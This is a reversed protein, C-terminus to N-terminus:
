SRLLERTDPVKLRGVAGQLGANGFSGGNFHALRAFRQAERTIPERERYLAQERAMQEPSLNNCFSTRPDEQHALEKIENRKVIEAGVLHNIQTKIAFLEQEELSPKETSTSMYNARHAQRYANLGEQVNDSDPKISWFELTAIVDHDLWSTFNGRDLEQLLQKSANKSLAPYDHPLDPLGPIREFSALLRNGEENDFFQQMFRHELLRAAAKGQRYENISAIEHQPVVLTGIQQPAETVTDKKDQYIKELLSTLHIDDEKNYKKDLESSYFSYKGSENLRGCRMGSNLVITYLIITHLDDGFRIKFFGPGCDEQFAYVPIEIHQKESKAEFLEPHEEYKRDWMQNIRQNIHDRRQEAHYDRIQDDFDGAYMGSIMSLVSICLLLKKM